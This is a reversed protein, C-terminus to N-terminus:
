RNSRWHGKIDLGLIAFGRALGPSQRTVYNIRIHMLDAEERDDTRKGDRRVYSGTTGFGKTSIEYKRFYISDNVNFKRNSYDEEEVHFTRFGSVISHFIEPDLDLEHITPGPSRFISTQQKNFDMMKKDYAILAPYYKNTPHIYRNCEDAKCCIGIGSPVFECDGECGIDPFKPLEDKLIKKM